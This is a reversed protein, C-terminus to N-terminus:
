LWKKAELAHLPSSHSGCPSQLQVLPLLQCLFQLHSHDDHFAEWNREKRKRMHLLTMMRSRGAGGFYHVVLLRRGFEMSKHVMFKSGLKHAGWRRPPKSGSTMKEIM